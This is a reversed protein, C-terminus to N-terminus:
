HPAVEFYHRVIVGDLFLKKWISRLQRTVRIDERRIIVGSLRRCFLSISKQDIVPSTFAITFKAFISNSESSHKDSMLSTHWFDGSIVVITITLEKKCYQRDRM